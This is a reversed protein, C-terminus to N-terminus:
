GSNQIPIFDGADLWMIAALCVEPGLCLDAHPVEGPQFWSVGATLVPGQDQEDFEWHRLHGSVLVAWYDYTHTYPTEVRVAPDNRVITAHPGPEIFSYYLACVSVGPFFSSFPTELTPTRVTETPYDQAEAVIASTALVWLCLALKPPTRGITPAM